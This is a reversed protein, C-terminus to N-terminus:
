PAYVVTESLLGDSRNVGSLRNLMDIAEEKSDFTKAPFCDFGPFENHWGFLGKVQVEYWPKGFPTQKEVVRRQKSM